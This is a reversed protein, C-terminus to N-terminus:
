ISKFETNMIIEVLEEMKNILGYASAINTSLDAKVKNEESTFNIEEQTGNAYEMKKNHIRELNNNLANIEKFYRFLYNYLNIQKDNLILYLIDNSNLIRDVELNKNLSYSVQNSLNLAVAKDKDIPERSGDYYKSLELTKQKDRELANTSILESEIASMNVCFEIDSINNSIDNLLRRRRLVLDQIYSEKKNKKNLKHIRNNLWIAVGSVIVTSIAAIATWLISLDFEGDTNAFLRIVYDYVKEGRYFGIIYGVLLTAILFAVRFYWKQHWKLEM